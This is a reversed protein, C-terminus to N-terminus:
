KKHQYILNLSKSNDARQFIRGNTSSLQQGYFTADNEVRGENFTSTGGVTLHCSANYQRGTGVTATTTSGIRLRYHGGTAHLIMETGNAPNSPNMCRFNRNRFEFVGQSDRVRLNYNSDGSARVIDMGTTPVQIDGTINTVNLSGVIEM